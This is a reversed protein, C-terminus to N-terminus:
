LISEVLMRMKRMESEQDIRSLPALDVCLAHDYKVQNLQIVLKNYELVGQGLQVQFKTRTTDRLRVHAVFPTISDFDIPKAREFIFWSPDLAISLEPISRCLSHISDISDTICDKQTLVCVTIGNAIGVQTLRRLREIEENYPTGLPSSLVVITIIRLTKALKVCQLFKDFYRPDDPMIDFFFAVPNIQRCSQILRAARVPETEMYEPSLDGPKTGVVVEVSTYELDALKELCLDLPLNPFCRTSAAVFM